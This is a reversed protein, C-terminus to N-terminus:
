EEAAAEEAAITSVWLRGGDLIKKMSAQTTDVPNFLYFTKDTYVPEIEYYGLHVDNEEDIVLKNNKNTRSIWDGLELGAFQKFPRGDVTFEDFVPELIKRSFAKVDSTKIEMVDTIHLTDLGNMILSSLQNVANDLTPTIATQFDRTADAYNNAGFAKTADTENGVVFDMEAGCNLCYVKTINLEKGVKEYDTGYTHELVAYDGSALKHTRAGTKANVTTTITGQTAPTLTVIKGDAYAVAKKTPLNELIEDVIIKQYDVYYTSKSNRLSDVFGSVSSFRSEVVESDILTNWTSKVKDVLKQYAASEPVLFSGQKWSNVLNEVATEFASRYKDYKAKYAGTLAGFIDFEVDTRKMMKGNLEYLTVGSKAIVDGCQAKSASVTKVPTAELAYHGTSAKLYTVEKGSAYVCDYDKSDSLVYTGLMPVTQGDKFDVRVRYLDTVKREADAEQVKELVVDWNNSSQMYVTGGVKNAFYAEDAGFAVTALSLALVLALVLAVIRRM